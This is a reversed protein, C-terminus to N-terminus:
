SSRQGPQLTLLTELKTRYFGVAKNLRSRENTDATVEVTLSSLGIRFAAYAIQYFTLADWDLRVAAERIPALLPAANEVGLDWEVLAAAVDWLLLQRGVITHDSDHGECDTKLIQGDSTRIWNYPALHGDGYGSSGEGISAYEAWDRARDAWHHGLAEATNCDIIEKLRAIAAASEGSSLPKNAAAVIYRGIHELVDSARSDARTLRQGDIWPMAVFGRFTALPEPAYGQEARASLTGLTAEATPGLGAFKWLVSPGRRNACCFKMREFRGAVAPWDQEMPFALKRWHGASLDEVVEFGAPVDCIEAAKLALTETLSLGNWRLQALPATYRPITAWLQRIEPSAAAGPEGSHGPLFSVDSVGARKLAVAVAAMSSGSIGPGEDVVIGIKHKPLTPLEVKRRFPEGAPRVTLREIKWGAARLAASVIASLSTGISRVGVVVAERQPVLSHDKAWELAAACYQEPFLAYFAFGEPVKITLLPDGEVVNEDFAACVEKFGRGPRGCWCEYFSAAILDTLRAVVKHMGLLSDAVGQELQGAEILLV